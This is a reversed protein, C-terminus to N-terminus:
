LPQASYELVKWSTRHAETLKWKGMHIRGSGQFTRKELFDLTIEHGKMTNLPIGQSEGITMTKTTQSCSPSLKCKEFKEKEETFVKKEHIVYDTVVRM